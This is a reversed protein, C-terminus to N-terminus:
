KSSSRRGRPCISICRACFRPEALDLWAKEQRHCIMHDLVDSRDNPYSTFDNYRLAKLPCNDICARCGGCRNDMPCPGEDLEADTLVTILRVRPGFEPTVFLLSRGIWGLGAQHAVAKHSIQGVIAEHDM